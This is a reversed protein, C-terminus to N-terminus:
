APTIALPDTTGDPSIAIFHVHQIAGSKQIFQYTVREVVAASTFKRRLGDSANPSSHWTLTAHDGPRPTDIADRSLSRALKITTRTEPIDAYTPHPGSDSWETITRQPSREVALSLVDPLTTSGFTVLQPNLLLM